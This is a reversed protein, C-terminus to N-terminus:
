GAPQRMAAPDRRAAPEAARFERPSRGYEARFLRSFLAPNTLGVAAAVDAISRDRHDPDALLARARELRARRITAAVGGGEGAFLGYLARRSLHLARAVDDPGLGPDALHAEIYRRAERRRVPAVDEGDLAEGALARVLLTAAAMSLEALDEAPRRPLTELRGALGLLLPRVIAEWAPLGAPVQRETAREVAADPLPLDARPVFLQLTHLGAPARFGGATRGLLFPSGDRIPHERGHWRGVIGGGRAFVGVRLLDDRATAELGWTASVADCVVEVFSVPGAQLVRVSSAFSPPLPGLPELRTLGNVAEGYWSRWHEFRDSPEVGLAHFQQFHCAGM